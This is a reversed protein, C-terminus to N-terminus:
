EEEQDKSDPTVNIPEEGRVVCDHLMRELDKQLMEITEGQPHVFDTWGDKSKVELQTKEYFEVIGYARETSDDPMKQDIYGIRYHWTM